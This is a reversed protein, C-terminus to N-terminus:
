WLEELSGLAAEAARQEAEKKSKGEGEGLPQGRWFVAVRFRKDHDPGAAELLDYALGGGPWRQVYEQLATKPDKGRPLAQDAELIPRLAEIALRRAPELGLDLYLAGVVAEFADALDSNRNRGGSIEEGKGLSVYSGLEIARAAAALSEERVAAARLRTLEGEALEPYRRFIHDSVVLQLVADGLYELRQNSGLPRGAENAWSPHTLAQEYLEGRRPDEGARQALQLLLESLPRSDM